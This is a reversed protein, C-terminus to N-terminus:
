PVVGTGPRCQERIGPPLQHVVGRELEVTGTTSKKVQKAMILNVEKIKRLMM